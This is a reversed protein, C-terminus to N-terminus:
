VNCKEALKRIARDVSDAVTSTAMGLVEGIERYRLGEARLLLCEREAETLSRVATRLQRFKEKNLLEREPTRHDLMEDRSADFPTAFRRDYSTQRNRAQNHAVRFLWSRINEQANGSTIHRHLSLFADQAIDQAEDPSLGLCVLYRLLPKRLEEFLKTAETSDSSFASASLTFPVSDGSM